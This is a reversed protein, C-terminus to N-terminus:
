TSPTPSRAWCCSPTPRWGAARRTCRTSGRTTPISSCRTSRRTSGSGRRGQQDAAGGVRLVVDPRHADAFAPVRLLRTTPPSRARCGCTRSRTPSCRGAPPRPSARARDVAARRCGMRRGGPGASPRRVLHALADLMAVSPARARRRTRPGRAVTRGVPRRSWSRAPPCWRSASRSTSTCRGPRRVSRRACACAGGASRWEAGVGPRDDPLGADHFWRVADGYLKVQDVTQGAGTDRLEPPRDATCVILPVRGHHAELVAPHFNAAATGSTTCCWRAASGDGARRRPRLVVGLARRPARPAPAARRRRARARATGLAVGARPVRRHRRPAGMRRRAHPRLRDTADRTM